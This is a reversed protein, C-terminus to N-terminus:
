TDWHGDGSNDRSYNWLVLFCTRCYQKWFANSVSRWGSLENWSSKRYKEPAFKSLNEPKNLLFSSFHPCSFKKFSIWSLILFVYPLLDANHVTQVMWLKDLTYVSKLLFSVNDHDQFHLYLHSQLLFLPLMLIKSSMQLSGPERVFSCIRSCYKNNIINSARPLCIGCEALLPFLNHPNQSPIVQM